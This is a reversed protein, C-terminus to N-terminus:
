IGWQASPEIDTIWPPLLFSNISYLGLYSGDGLIDVRYYSPINNVGLAILRGDSTTVSLAARGDPLHYHYIILLKDHKAMYQEIKKELQANTLEPLPFNKLRQHEFNVLREQFYLM